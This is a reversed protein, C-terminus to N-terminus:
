RSPGDQGTSRRPRGGTKFGGQQFLRILRYGIGLELLRGCQQIVGIRENTGGGVPDDRAFHFRVVAALIQYPGIVLGWGPEVGPSVAGEGVAQLAIVGPLGHAVSRMVAAM